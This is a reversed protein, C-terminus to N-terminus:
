CRCPEAKKREAKRKERRAARGPPGVGGRRFAHSALGFPDIKRQAVLFVDQVSLLFLAAEANQDSRFFGSVPRLLGVLVACLPRNHVMRRFKAPDCTYHFARDPVIRVVKLLLVSRPFFAAHFVRAQDHPERVADIGIGRTRNVVELRPAFQFLEM